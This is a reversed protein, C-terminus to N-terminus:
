IECAVTWTKTGTHTTIVNANLWVGCNLHEQVLSCFAWDETEYQHDTIRFPFFDWFIEDGVQYKQVKDKLPVLVRKVDICMFGTPLHRVQFEKGHKLEKLHKLETETQPWATKDEPLANYALGAGDQKMPYTGGVVQKDSNYIELFQEPEWGIDSDIFFLKDYGQNMAVQAAENRICTIAGGNYFVAYSHPINEKYLVPVLKMMSTYFTHTLQGNYMPTALLVKPKM